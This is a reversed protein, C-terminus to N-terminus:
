SVVGTVIHQHEYGSIYKEKDHYSRFMVKEEKNEIDVHQKEFLVAIRFMNNLYILGHHLIYTCKRKDNGPEDITSVRLAGDPDITLYGGNQGQFNIRCYNPEAM